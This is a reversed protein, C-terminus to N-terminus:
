LADPYVINKQIASLVVASFKGASLNAVAVTYYLRLYRLDTGVPIKMIKQYGIILSAKAVAESVVVDTYSSNDSSKQIAFTVTSAGASVAAESCTILVYLGDSLGIDAASGLDIVNTSAASATVAQADSLQLLKDQIM